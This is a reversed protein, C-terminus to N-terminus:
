GLEVAVGERRDLNMALGAMDQQYALLNPLTHQPLSSVTTALENATMDDIIEWGRSVYATQKADNLSVYGSVSPGFSEHPDTRVVTGLDRRAFLKTGALEMVYATIQISELNLQLADPRSWRNVFLATREMAPADLMDGTLANLGLTLPTTAVILRRSDASAVYVAPTDFAEVLELQLALTGLRRDAELRKAMMREADNPTANLNSSSSDHSM